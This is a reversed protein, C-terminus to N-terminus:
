WLRFRDRLHKFLTRSIHFSDVYVRAVLGCIIGIVITKVFLWQSFAQEFLLSYDPYPVGWFQSVQYATVGGIIAPLLFDHRIRGIALVEVGYIAGAIPTGFVSAFGASVGCAVLRKRLETNVRLLQGLGAGVSAGIHSCPGEKGASGGSALTVIAAVPKIFCTRLPMRGGQDHVAEIVGDNLKGRNLRYGYYRLLGNVLAGVPLLTLQLWLSAAFSRGALSFLVILFFSVATGVLAGTVISLVMWQLVTSFM